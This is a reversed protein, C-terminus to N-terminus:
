RIRTQEAEPSGGTDTAVAPCGSLARFRTRWVHVFVFVLRCEVRLNKELITEVEDTDRRHLGRYVGCSVCM